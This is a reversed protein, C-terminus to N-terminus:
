LRMAIMHIFDERERVRSEPWIFRVRVADFVFQDMVKRVLMCNQVRRTQRSNIRDM